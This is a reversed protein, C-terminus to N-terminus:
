NLHFLCFPDGKTLMCWINMATAMENVERGVNGRHRCATHAPELAALDVLLSAIILAPPCEPFGAKDYHLVVPKFGEDYEHDQEATSRQYTPTKTHLFKTVTPTYPMM